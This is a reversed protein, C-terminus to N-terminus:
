HLFDDYIDRTEMKMQVFNDKSLTLLWSEKKDYNKVTFSRKLSGEHWNDLLEFEDECDDSCDEDHEHEPNLVANTDICGAIIDIM